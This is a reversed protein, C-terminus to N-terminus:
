GTGGNLDAALIRGNADLILNVPDEGLPGKSSDNFDSLLTRRGNTADVEFIAGRFDAGADLDAVLLQGNPSVIVSVPNMGLRGQSLDGFDSILTRVGSAAEVQFLAGRADTGAGSDIVYVSGTATPVTQARRVDLPGVNSFDFLYARKCTIRWAGM